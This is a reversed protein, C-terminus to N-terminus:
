PRAAEGLAALAEAAAFREVPDPNGLMAALAAVAAVAARAAQGGPKEGLALDAALAAPSKDGRSRLDRLREQALIRVTKRPSLDINVDPPELHINEDIVKQAAAIQEELYM